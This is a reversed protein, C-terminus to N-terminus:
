YCYKQFSFYYLSNKMTVTALSVVKRIIWINWLDTENQKDSELLYHLVQFVCGERGFDESPMNLLFSNDLFATHTETPLKLVNFLLSKPYTLTHDATPYLPFIALLKM